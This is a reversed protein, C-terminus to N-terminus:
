RKKKGSAWGLARRRKQKKKLLTAALTKIQRGKHAELHVRDPIHVTSRLLGVM